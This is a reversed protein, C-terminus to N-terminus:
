GSRGITFILIQILIFCECNSIGIDFFEESEDSSQASQNVSEPIEEEDEEEEEETSAKAALLSTTNARVTAHSSMGLKANDQHLKNSEMDHNEQALVRLSQELLECKLRSEVLQSKLM